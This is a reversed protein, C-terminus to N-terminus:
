TTWRRRLAQRNLALWQLAVLACANTVRGQAVLEFAEAASCVMVRIDEGESDLGHVGGLGSSDVRGCYIVVTESCAGPSLLIDAIPELAGVSCGAEEIAERRALEQPAEDPDLIGAVIEILWPDRGAALAGSRFQEILVVKDEIPDYPLVAAAHGREFVERTLPATWGGEFKRHRLRYRDVQFYGDFVREKEIIEVRQDSHAPETM